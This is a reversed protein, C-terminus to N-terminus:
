QAVRFFEVAGSQEATFIVKAGETKRETTRPQWTKLDTTSQVQANAAAGEVAFSLKKDAFSIEGIILQAQAQTLAVLQGFLRATSDNDSLAKFKYETDVRIVLKQAGGETSLTAAESVKNTSLGTLPVTGKSLVLDYDLAATSNAPFGFILSSADFAGNSIPIQPSTVDLVVNRFAGKAVIFSGAQGAFDAPASGAAGGVGPQWTGNVEADVTSGGTFQISSSTVEAKITGGFKTTLSDDGGAQKQVKSGAINADITITSQAPDITFVVPAASVTWSFSFTAIFLWLSAFPHTHM